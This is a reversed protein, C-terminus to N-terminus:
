LGINRVPRHSHTLVSRSNSWVPDANWAANGSPLAFFATAGFNVTVSDASDYLSVMPAYTGAALAVTTTSSLVGNKYVQMVGTFIDLSLGIVDGVVPATWSATVSNAGARLITNGRIGITNAVYGVSSSLAVASTGFGAAILASAGQAVKTVEYYYKSGGGTPRYYTARVAATVTSGNTATLDGGSLTLSAAKDSPNLTVSIM